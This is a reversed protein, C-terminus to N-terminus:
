ASSSATTFIANAMVCLFSFDSCIAMASSAGTLAFLCSSENESLSKSAKKTDQHCRMKVIEGMNGNSIPISCYNERHRPSLGLSLTHVVYSFKTDIHIVPFLAM